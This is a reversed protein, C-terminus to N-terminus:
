RAPGATTRCTSPTADASTNGRHCGQCNQAPLLSHQLGPQTGHPTFDLAGSVVWWDAGAAGAAGAVAQWLLLAVGLVWSGM